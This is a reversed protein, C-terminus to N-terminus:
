PWRLSGARRISTTCVTACSRPSDRSRMASIVVCLASRSNPGACAVVAYFAQAGSRWVRCSSARRVSTSVADIVRMARPSEARKGPQHHPRLTLRGTRGRSPQRTATGGANAPASRAGPRHRPTRQPWEIGDAIVDCVVCVPRHCRRSRGPLSALRRRTDSQVILPVLASARSATCWCLGMWRVVQHQRDRPQM